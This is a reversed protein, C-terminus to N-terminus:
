QMLHWLWAFSLQEVPSLSFFPANLDLMNPTGSAPQGSSSFIESIFRALSRTIRDARQRDDGDIVRHSGTGSMANAVVAHLRTNELLLIRDINRLDFCAREFVNEFQGPAEFNVAQERAPVRQVERPRIRFRRGTVFHQHNPEPGSPERERMM